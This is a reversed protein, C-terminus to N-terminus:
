FPALYLPDDAECSPLGHNKESRGGTTASSSYAVQVQQHNVVLPRIWSRGSHVKDDKRMIGQSLTDGIPIVEDIPRRLETPWQM